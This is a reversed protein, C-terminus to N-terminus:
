SLNCSNFIYFGIFQIEIHLALIPDRFFRCLTHFYLMIHLLVFKSVYKLGDVLAIIRQLLSIDNNTKYVIWSAKCM